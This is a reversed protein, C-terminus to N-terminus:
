RRGPNGDHGAGVVSDAGRLRRRRLPDAPIDAAGPKLEYIMVTSRVGFSPSREEGSAVLLNRRPIALLGEPGLPAPLLQSFAPQGNKGTPVGGRLQRAGHGVFVLDEPGFRASAISEPETGKNPARRRTTDTGFPWGRSRLQRQRLGGVM